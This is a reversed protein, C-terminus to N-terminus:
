GEWNYNHLISDQRSDDLLLSLKSDLAEIRRDVENFPLVQEVNWIREVFFALRKRLSPIETTEEQEWSCMQAGIVLESKEVQIPVISPAKEWWNEWRYM